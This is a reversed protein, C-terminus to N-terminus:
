INEINEQEKQPHLLDIIINHLKSLYVLYSIDAAYEKHCSSLYENIALIESWETYGKFKLLNLVRLTSDYIGYSIIFEDSKWFSVLDYMGQVYEWQIEHQNIFNIIFKRIEKSSFGKFSGESPLSYTVSEIYKKYEDQLECLKKEEELLKESDEYTELSAAYSSTDEEILSLIESHNKDNLDKRQLM